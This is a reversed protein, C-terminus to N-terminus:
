LVQPSLVSMISLNQAFKTKQTIVLDTEKRLHRTHGLNYKIQLKLQWRLYHMLVLGYSVQFVILPAVNAGFFTKVPGRSQNFRCMFFDDESFIVNM